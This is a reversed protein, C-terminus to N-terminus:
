SIPSAPRGFTSRDPGIGGGEAALRAAEDALENGEAGEHSPTWRITLTNGRDYQDDVRAIVAKALAQAPGCWGHQIWMVVAQADSFITYEEGSEGRQQPPTPSASKSCNFLTMRYEVGM